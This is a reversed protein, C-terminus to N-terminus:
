IFRFKVRGEFSRIEGLRSLAWGSITIFLPLGQERGEEGLM